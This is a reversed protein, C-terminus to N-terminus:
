TLANALEVFFRESPQDTPYCSEIHLEQLTINLPSGLTACTTYLRVNHVGNNFHIPMILQPFGAPNNEQAVPEQALPRYRNIEELVAALKGGRDGARLMRQARSSMIQYIKPLEVINDRLGDPHFLLTLLNAQQPILADPEKIFTRCFKIFPENMLQIDFNPALVIAPFPSSASLIKELVLQAQQMEPASLGTEEYLPSYGKDILLSNRIRLPIELQHSLRLLLQRSPHARGTEICSLHRTSTDCDLALELQSVKRVKRWYRLVDGTDQNNNNQM